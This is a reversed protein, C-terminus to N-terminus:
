WMGLFVIFQLANILIWLSNLAKQLVFCMLIEWISVAVGVAAAKAAMQLLDEYEQESYQPDLAVEHKVGEFSLHELTEADVILEPM